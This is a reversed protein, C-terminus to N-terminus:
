MAKIFFMKHLTYVEDGLGSEVSKAIAGYSMGMLYLNQSIACM